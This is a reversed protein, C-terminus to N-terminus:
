ESPIEIHFERRPGDLRLIVHDLIDRGIIAYARRTLHVKVRSFVAGQILVDVFYQFAYEGKSVAGSVFVHPLDPDPELRLESKVKETITTQSAGTDLLAM